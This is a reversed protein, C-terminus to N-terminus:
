STVTCMTDCTWMHASHPDNALTASVCQTCSHVSYPACTVAGTNVEDEIEIQSLGKKSKLQVFDILDDPQCALKADERKQEAAERVPLATGSSKWRAHSDAKTPKLSPTLVHGRAFKALPSLPPSSEDLCVGYCPREQLVTSLCLLQKESTLASFSDKCSELWVQLASSPDLIICALLLPLRLMYGGRKTGPLHGVGIVALVEGWGLVCTHRSRAEEGQGGGGRPTGAGSPVADHPGQQRRGPAGAAPSGRGPAPHPHHDAHRIRHGQEHQGSSSSAPWASCHATKTACQSALPQPVRAAGSRCQSPAGLKPCAVPQLSLDKGSTANLARLRLM